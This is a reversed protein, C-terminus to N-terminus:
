PTRYIDSRPERGDRWRRDGSSEVYAQEKKRGNKSRWRRQIWLRWVYDRLIVWSTYVIFKHYRIKSKEDGYRAPMPVNVASVGVANFKILLDTEFAFGPEVRDLNLRELAERTVATYGNLPDNIHHYGSAIKVIYTLLKNGFRRLPPMSKADGHRSLRDGKSYDAEGDVVPAIINEFIAPDMQGDGAMIVIIDMLEACARKYGSLMAGGAGRQQEHRVVTLRNDPIGTLIAPTADSSADDVVFIGDVFDPMTEVVTGIFKEENYAPVVVGIRKGNYM